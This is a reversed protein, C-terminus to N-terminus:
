RLNRPRPRLNGAAFPSGAIAALAGSTADVTYVSVNNSGGNTVYVFRPPNTTCTVAINTVDSTGSTGMGNTVVCTQSPNTPQTKVTVNYSSNFNAIGFFVNTGNAAPGNFQGGLPTSNNQLTLRSGVLGSVTGSLNDAFPGFLFSGHGGGGGCGALALPILLAALRARLVCMGWRRSSLAATTVSSAIHLKMSTGGPPFHTSGNIEPASDKLAAVSFDLSQQLLRLM